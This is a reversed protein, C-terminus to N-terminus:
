ELLFAPSESAEDGTFYHACSGNCVSEMELVESVMVADHGMVSLFVLVIWGRSHAFVDVQLLIM